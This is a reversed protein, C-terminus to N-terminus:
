QKVFTRVATASFGSANLQWSITTDGPSMSLMENTASLPGDSTPQGTSFDLTTDSTVVFYAAVPLASTGGVNDILFLGNDVKSVHSVFGTTRQYTGSIDVTNPNTVAILVPSSGIYGYKNKATVQVVYLGPTTNDLTSNDITVPLSVKYFSDYATASITPLTGGVPIDYISAGTLTVTPISPTVVQSIQNEKKKCATFAVAPILISILIKKM